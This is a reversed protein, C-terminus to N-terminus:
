HDRRLDYSFAGLLENPEVSHCKLCEAQARIAGIMRIRWPGQVSSVDEGAQLKPLHEVEFEDLPRIPADRLEDM